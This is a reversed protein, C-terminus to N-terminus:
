RAVILYVLGTSGPSKLVDYHQQAGDVLVGTKKSRIVKM